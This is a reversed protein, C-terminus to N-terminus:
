HNDFIFVGGGPADATWIDGGLHFDRGIAAYDIYNRFFDPVGSLSDETYQYAYDELSDYHGIFEDAFKEPDTNYEPENMHWAVFAEPNDSDVYANAMDEVMQYAPYEGFDLGGMDYDHIALEEHPAIEALFKEAEDTLNTADVWRGVLEGANYAALDALYVQADTSTSTRTTM